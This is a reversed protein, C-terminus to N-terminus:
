IVFLLLGTIFLIGLLGWAIWTISQDYDLIVYKNRNKRFEKLPIVKVKKTKKEIVEIVEM